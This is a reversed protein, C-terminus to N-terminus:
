APFLQLFLLAASYIKDGPLNLFCNLGTAFDPPLWVGHTKKEVKCCGQIGARKYLHEGCLHCLRLFSYSIRRQAVISGSGILRHVDDFAASHSLISILNISDYGRLCRM